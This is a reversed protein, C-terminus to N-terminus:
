AANIVGKKTLLAEASKTTSLKGTQKQPDDDSETKPIEFKSGGVSKSKRTGERQKAFALLAKQGSEELLESLSKKDMVIIGSEPEKEPEETEVGLAKLVGKTVNETLQNEDITKVKEVEAEKKPEEPKILAKVGDLLTKNNDEIMKQVTKEDMTDDGDNKSKIKFVEMKKTVYQEEVEVPDGLTVEGAEDISYPIEYLKDEGNEYWEVVVSEPFTLKVWLWDRSDPGIDYKERLAASISDRISEYSDDENLTQAKTKFSKIVDEDEEEDILQLLEDAANYIATNKGAKSRGGSAANKAAIVGQRYIKGNKGIEFGYSGSLSEDMDPHVALAYKKYESIDSDFDAFTPKSWPGNNIEDAKIQKKANDYCIQNVIYDSKKAKEFYRKEISKTIQRCIGNKCTKSSERGTGLTDMNVPLPTLTADLLKIKDLVRVTGELHDEEYLGGFSGGLRTGTDVHEKIKKTISPKVRVKVYMMEMDNETAIWADVVPGITEDLGYEHAEFGNINTAQKVMDQLCEPSARENELDTTNTSLGYEIYYFGDDEFYGKLLPMIIKFRKNTYNTNIM